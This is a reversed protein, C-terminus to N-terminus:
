EKPSSSTEYPYFPNERGLEAASPAAPSDSFPKLKLFLPSDLIEFDIKIKKIVQPYEPEIDTPEEKKFFQSYLIIFIIVLSILFFLVLNKQSKKKSTLTIAM